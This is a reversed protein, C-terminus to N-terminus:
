FFLLGVGGNADYYQLGTLDEDEPLFFLNGNPTGGERMQILYLFLCYSQIGKPSLGRFHPVRHLIM